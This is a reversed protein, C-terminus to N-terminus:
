LDRLQDQNKANLAEEKLFDLKGSAVDKELQEDWQQWDQETIWDRLQAFEQASLNAIESKLQEVQKMTTITYLIKQSNYTKTKLQMMRLFMVEKLVMVLM